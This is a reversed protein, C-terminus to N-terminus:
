YGCTNKTLGNWRKGKFINQLFNWVYLLSHTTCHLGVYKDVVKTILKYDTKNWDGTVVWGMYNQLSDWDDCWKM